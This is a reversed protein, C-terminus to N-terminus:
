ATHGSDDHPDIVLSISHGDIGVVKVDEAVAEAGATRPVNFVEGSTFQIKEVGTLVIQGGNIIVKGDPLVEISYNSMSGTLKVVDTGGDADVIASAGQQIFIVDDGAGSSVTSTGKGTISILDNGSATIIVDNGGGSEVTVNGAGSTSPRFILVDDGGTGIVARDFSGDFTLNAAKATSDFIIIKAGTDQDLSAGGPVHLVVGQEAKGEYKVVQVNTLGLKNLLDIIGQKVDPSLNSGGLSGLLSAIPVEYQAM